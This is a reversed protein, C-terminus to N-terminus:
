TPSWTPWSWGGPASWSSWGRSRTPRTRRATTAASSRSRPCSSSRRCRSRSAPAPGARRRRRHRGPRLADWAPGSRRRPRRGGRLRLRGRRRHARPDRRRRRRRVRRGRRHRRAAARPRAERARRDVAVITAAGALRAAAIVQLGVGGCGIVCVREGIRVRAAHTVAGFGTVVGCGLLAAQWLPVEAPSRSRRARPWSRTARCLLRRQPRAPARRRRGARLRSSGDLLMGAVSRLGAPECLTRRGARCAKCVGCSPVLCLVVHDGPMCTPSARASRRSSAPARTASSWRGAAAARAPRRGPPHRLPLRRRRGDPGAGRRAAAAGASADRRGVAPGPERLVCARMQWRDTAPAATLTTETM